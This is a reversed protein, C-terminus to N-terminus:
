GIQRFKPRLKTFDIPSMDQFQRELGRFGGVLNQVLRRRQHVVIQESGVNNQGCSELALASSPGRRLELLEAPQGAGFLGDAPSELGVLIRGHKVGVVSETVPGVFNFEVGGPVLQHAESDLVAKRAQGPGFKLGACVHRPSSQHQEGRLVLSPM